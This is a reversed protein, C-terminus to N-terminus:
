SFALVSGHGGVGPTWDKALGIEFEVMDDLVLSKLVKKWIKIILPWPGPSTVERTKKGQKLAFFGKKTDVTKKM